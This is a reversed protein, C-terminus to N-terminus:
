RGLWALPELGTTRSVVSPERSSSLWFVCVTLAVTVDSSALSYTWSAVLGSLAPPASLREFSPVTPKM